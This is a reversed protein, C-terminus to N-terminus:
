VDSKRNRNFFFLFLNTTFSIMLLFVPTPLLEVTSPQLVDCAIKENREEKKICGNLKRIFYVNLDNADSHLMWKRTPLSYGEAGANSVDAANPNM